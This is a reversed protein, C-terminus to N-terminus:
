GGFARTTLNSIIDTLAFAATTIALGIAAFVITRKEKQLAVPNGASTMYGIGTTLGALTILVQILPQLFDTLQPNIVAPGGVAIGGFLASSLQEIM